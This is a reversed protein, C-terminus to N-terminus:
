MDGLRKRSVSPDTLNKALKVKDKDPLNDNTKDIIHNYLELVPPELLLPDVESLHLTINKVLKPNEDISKWISAAEKYGKMAKEIRGIAWTNYRQRRLNEIKMGIEAQQSALDKAEELVLYEESMPYMSLIRGAIALKSAGENCTPANLAEDHLSNVESVVKKRLRDMLELKYESVAKEDDPHILMLDLSILTEAMLQASPNTGLEKDLRAVDEYSHMELDQLMQDLSKMEAEVSDAPLACGSARLTVRLLKLEQELTSVQDALPEEVDVPEEEHSLGLISLVPTQLLAGFMFALPGVIVMTIFVGKTQTSM